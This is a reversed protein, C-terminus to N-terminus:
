KWFRSDVFSEPGDASREGAEARRHRWLALAILPPMLIIVASFFLVSRAPWVLTAAFAGGLVPVLLWMWPVLAVACAAAVTTLLLLDQALVGPAPMRLWVAIGRSAAVLLGALVAMAFLRRNFASQLLSKRMGIGVGAALLLVVVAIVLLVEPRLRAANPQSITFASVAVAAGSLAGLARGRPRRGVGADLDRAIQRLRDRELRSREQRRKARAMRELLSESPSALERTLAAATEVHGQRLELEIAAELTAALGALATANQPWDRLAHTFGFRAETALLYARELESPADDGPAARLLSRLMDLREQAEAALAFSSRHRLYDGIAQRLELASAPREEPDRATARNALRALEEPVARPYEVPDSCFASLLLERLTDGGHRYEGTLIEHLTAGLLYIDTRPTVPRGAVMEPAMYAPTGVLGSEADSQADSDRVAIGWDVLYTEGYDGLMVNEPKIDRHVVGRAHAFEVAQCIQMLIELHVVLRDGPRSAWAPHNPDRILRRWEVGEVRKMVLVPLGREDVGLAHVPVIGPHELSGTIVAERLLAASAQAPVSGRKLTKVAVDRGLSRQRAAHVAGMGGEGLLGIVELDAQSAAPDDLARPAVSEPFALSIRPLRATDTRLASPPRTLTVAPELLPATEAFGLATWRQQFTRVLAPDAAM